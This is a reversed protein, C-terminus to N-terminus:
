IIELQGSYTVTNHIGQFSSYGNSQRVVPSEYLLHGRGCQMNHPLIPPVNLCTAYKISLCEICILFVLVNVSILGIFHERQM